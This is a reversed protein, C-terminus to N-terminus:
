LIKEDSQNQIGRECYEQILIVGQETNEQTNDARRTCDCYLNPKAGICDGMGPMPALGM